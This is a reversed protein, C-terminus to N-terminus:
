LSTVLLCNTLASPITMCSVSEVFSKTKCEHMPRNQELWLSALLAARLWPFKLFKYKLTYITMPFHYVDFQLYPTRSQCIRMKGYQRCVLGYYHTFAYSYKCMYLLYVQSLSWTLQRRHLM